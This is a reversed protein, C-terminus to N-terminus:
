LELYRLTSGIRRITNEAVATNQGWTVAFTGANSGNHVIIDFRVMRSQTASSAYPIGTTEYTTIGRWGGSTILTGTEANFSELIGFIRTPSAPGSWGFKLDSAALVSFFVEAQIRYETNAAMEFQLVDDAALAVTNSRALDGTAPVTTWDASLAPPTRVFLRKDTLHASLVADLDAPIYLAGLPAADDPLSPFPPSMATPIGDQVFVVGADDVLVLDKRPQTLNPTPVEVELQEAVVVLSDAIVVLGAAVDVSLGEPDSPSVLCGSVVGRGRIAAAYMDDDVPDFEAQPYVPPDLGVPDEIANEPTRFRSM